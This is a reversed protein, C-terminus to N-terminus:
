RTGGQQGKSRKHHRHKAVCRAKSGGGMRRRGAKCRKPPPAPNGRGRYSSSALTPNDPAIATPQCAEGLCEASPGSSAPFGGGIRADYIARVGGVGQTLSDTSTFFVDRGDAGIGYLYSPDSGRGSSILALCGQERECGGTGDAEWEYVDILGNADTPVLADSSQFFVMRGDSTVNQIMSLSNTPTEDKVTQNLVELKASATAPALSPNCSVCITNGLVADYRYIEAHEDAEQGALSARSEFVLYRGDASTRSPDNGPGNLLGQAPSVVATTWLGLGGFVAGSVTKEGVVDSKALIAIFALTGSAGDWVYLNEKGASAGAALNKTSVFYVHSGDGSVNVVTSQGGSGVSTTAQTAVDYSFIDGSKLYVLHSGDASLGAFSTAGTAAAVTESNEIRLYLTSVGADLATFAIVSGDASVGLYRVQSGPAPTVDGPLLSAVRLTGDPTRDYIGESSAGAKLEQAGEELTKGSTFVIHSGGSNIWRGLAARDVGLSGQGLIEFSGDARRLYTTAPGFSGEDQIDTGTLWFSYGHDASVGGSAPHESQAGSPSQTETSWGDAGRTAEYRDNFGNGESGPISGDQTEFVVGEGDYRALQTAFGSVGGFSGSFAGSPTNNGTNAPSVREYARCDPLAASPGSRLAENPCSGSSSPMPYTSFAHSIEDGKGEKEREGESVCTSGEECENSAIVRFHYKTDPLLDTLGVSVPVSLSGSPLNEEPTAIAQAFGNEEFASDTVYEFRYHTASGNPNVEASLRVETSTADSFSSASISPPKVAGEVAFAYLHAVPTSASTVFVNRANNATLGNSVAIRSMTNSSYSHAELEPDAEYRYGGEGNPVFRYARKGVSDTVFAEGGVDDVGVDMQASGSAFDGNPTKSGDFEAKLAGGSSESGFVAIVNHNAANTMVVFVDGTAGSVAVGGLHSKIVDGGVPGLLVNGESAASYEMLQSDNQVRLLHDNSPDIAISSVSEGGSALVIPSSYTTTTTPPYSSPTYRVLTDPHYIANQVAYVHGLSDIALDTPLYKNEIETVFGGNPDFIDIRGQSTGTEPEYEGVSAVYIFGNSDIAVGAPEDFEEPPHDVGLVGPCLGPDPLPDAASTSCGGTLALGANFTHGPVAAARAGVALTSSLGVFVIALLGLGM